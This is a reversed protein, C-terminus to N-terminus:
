PLIDTKDRANVCVKLPCDRHLVLMGFRGLVTFSFLRGDIFERHPAQATRNQRFFLCLLYLPLVQGRETVPIAM